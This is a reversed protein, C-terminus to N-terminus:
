AARGSMQHVNRGDVSPASSQMAYNRIIEGSENLYKLFKEDKWYDVCEKYGFIAGDRIHVINCKEANFMLFTTLDKFSNRHLMVSGIAPKGNVTSNWNSQFADLKLGLYASLSLAGDENLDCLLRQSYACAEGTLVEIGFQRLDQWGHVLVYKPINM